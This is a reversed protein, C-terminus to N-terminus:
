KSVALIKEILAHDDPLLGAKPLRTVLEAWRADSAFVKKFLPLAEDVRGISALTVAPWFTMEINDPALQMAKTYEQMAEDVKNTTMLEDGKNAHTYVRNVHLLRKLEILPETHDDVRLDVIRSNWPTGSMEGSVILMAASQKGRIDGGEAQAAELAAMLRAALDGPTERYAKAMAQPVTSKEMLNAQCSFGPGTVHGAYVISNKGTHVAVNGNADVFAVQRVAANEDAHILASLAQQASKGARLLGLGLPGYGPDIFSQTAVAGVGPEAWSVISGVSFWNSQVAVGLQGTVSDRAVISYTAVPRLPKELQALLPTTLLLIFAIIKLCLNM